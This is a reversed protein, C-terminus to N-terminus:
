GLLTRPVMAVNASIVAHWVTAVLSASNAAELFSNKSACDSKLTMVTVVGLLLLSYVAQRLVPNRSHFVIPFQIVDKRSCLLILDVDASLLLEIGILLGEPRLLAALWRTLLRTGPLSLGTLLQDVGRRRHCVLGRSRM